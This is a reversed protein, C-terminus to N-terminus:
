CKEGLRNLLKRDKYLAGIAEPLQSSVSTHPDILLGTKGSEIVGDLSGDAMSVVATGSIMAELVPHSLNSVDNTNLYVDALNLILPM